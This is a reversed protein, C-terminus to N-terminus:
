GAPAAASRAMRALIATAALVAPIGVLWPLCAAAAYLATGFARGAADRVDHAASYAAMTRARAHAPGFGSATAQTVPGALM